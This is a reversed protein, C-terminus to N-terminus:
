KQTMLEQIQETVLSVPNEWTISTNHPWKKTLQSIMKTYSLLEQMNLNRALSTPNQNNKLDILTNELLLKRQWMDKRIMSLFHPTKVNISRSRYEQVVQSTIQKDSHTQILLEALKQMTKEAQLELQILLKMLAGINKFRHAGIKSLLSQDVKAELEKQLQERQSIASLAKWM